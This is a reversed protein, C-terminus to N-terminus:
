SMIVCAEFIYILMFGQYCSSSDQAIIKKERKLHSQRRQHKALFVHRAFHLVHVRKRTLRLRSQLLLRPLSVELIVFRLLMTVTHFIYIAALLLLKSVLFRNNFVLIKLKNIIYVLHQILYKNKENILLRHSSYKKSLM